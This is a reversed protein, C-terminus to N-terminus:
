SIFTEIWIWDSYPPNKIKIFYLLVPCKVQSRWLCMLNFYNFTQYDLYFVDNNWIYIDEQIWLSMILTSSHVLISHKFFCVWCFWVLSKSMLRNRAGACLQLSQMQWMLMLTKSRFSLSHKDFILKIQYVFVVLFRRFGGPNLLQM